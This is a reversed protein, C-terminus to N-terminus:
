AGQMGVVCVINLEKVIEAPIKSSAYGMFIPYAMHCM